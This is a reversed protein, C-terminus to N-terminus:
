IGKYIFPAWFYHHSFKDKTKLCANRYHEKMGKNPYDSRSQVFSEIWYLTSVQGVDWLPSIITQCGNGFLSQEFGLQVGGKGIKTVGTSCASSIFLEPAESNQIDKWSFLFDNAFSSDTSLYESPLEGKNSLCIGVGLEQDTEYGHCIFIAENHNNLEKLVSKVTAEEQQLQKVKLGGQKLLKKLKNSSDLASAIYDEKEERKTVTVLLSNKTKTKEKQLLALSSINNAYAVPLKELLTEHNGVKMLHLPLNSSAKGPILYVQEVESSLHPTIQEGINNIFNQFDSLKKDTFQLLKISPSAYKYANITKKKILAVEEASILPEASFSVETRATSILILHIGSDIEFLLAIVTNPFKARIKELNEKMSPIGRNKLVKSTIGRGFSFDIVELFDWITIYEEKYLPFALKKLHEQVDEKGKLWNVIFGLNDHVPTNKNISLVLRKFYLSANQFDNILFYYWSIIYDIQWSSSEATVMDPNTAVLGKALSLQNFKLLRLLLFYFTTLVLHHQLNERDAFHTFEKAADFIMFTDVEEVEDLLLAINILEAYSIWDYQAKQCYLETLIIYARNSDGKTIYSQALLCKCKFHGEPSITSDKLFPTLLSLSEEFLGNKLYISSIHHALQFSHDNSYLKELIQLAKADLGQNKFILAKRFLINKEALAKGEKDMVNLVAAAKNLFSMSTDYDNLHYYTKSIIYLIDFKADSSLISSYKEYKVLLKKTFSSALDQELNRNLTAIIHMIIIMSSIFDEKEEADKIVDEVFAMAIKKHKDRWLAEFLDNVSNANEIASTGNTSFELLSRRKALYTEHEDTTRNPAIALKMRSKSSKEFEEGWGYYYFLDTIKNLKIKDKSIITEQIVPLKLNFLINFGLLQNGLTENLFLYYDEKKFTVGDHRLGWFMDVFSTFHLETPNKKGAIKHIVATIFLIAWVQNVDSEGQSAHIEKALDVFYTLVNDTLCARPIRQEIEKPYLLVTNADLHLNYARTISNYVVFEYLANFDIDTNNYIPFRLFGKKACLLLRFEFPTFMWFTDPELEEEFAKLSHEFTDAYSFAIDSLRNFFGDHTNEVILTGYDFEKKESKSNLNLYIISGKHNIELGDLDFFGTNCTPCHFLNLTGELLNFFPTPEDPVRISKIIPGYTFPVKCNKCTTTLAEM